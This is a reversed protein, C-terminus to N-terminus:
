PTDKGEQSHEWVHMCRMRWVSELEGGSIWACRSTRRPSVNMRCVNTFTEHGVRRSLVERM